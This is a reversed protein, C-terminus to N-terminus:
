KAERLTLAVLADRVMDRAAWNHARPKRMHPLQGPEAALHEAVKCVAEDLMLLLARDEDTVHENVECGRRSRTATSPRGIM